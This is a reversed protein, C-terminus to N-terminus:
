ISHPFFVRLRACDRADDEKVHQEAQLKFFVLQCLSLHPLSLARNRLNNCTDQGSQVASKLLRLRTSCRGWATAWVPSAQTLCITWSRLKGALQM